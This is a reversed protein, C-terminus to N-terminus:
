YFPHTVEKTEVLKWNASERADGVIKYTDLYEEGDAGYVRYFTREYTGDGVDDLAIGFQSPAAGVAKAITAPINATGVQADSWALPGEGSGSPKYFMATQVGTFEEAWMKGVDGHDATVIITANEYIGLEKMRDFVKKMLTLCGWTQEYEDTLTGTYEGKRNLYCPAHSGDLHYFKFCKETRKATAEALLGCAFSNESKFRDTPSLVSKDQQIGNILYVGENYFSTYEWFFPKMMTPAYRYASLYMLKKLMAGPLITVTGEEKQALNAVYDVATEGSDFIERMSAYMEIKYGQEKLVDLIHTDQTIWANKMFEKGRVLYADETYGTLINCVSPRTRGFMSVANTYGTFGEFDDFFGPDENYIAEVYDYDMYDLIFVFVNEETSYEQAGRNTLYYGPGKPLQADEYAGLLIGVLPAMQMVVLLGSVCIVMNRWFARHFYMVTIVALFVASWAALSIVMDTKMRSWEVIEGTLAGVSGNLCAAQLYGAVTVSFIVAVVYNFIKGRLLSMLLTGGVFAATMAALLLWIVDAYTYDLSEVGFAVMEFPGFFIFTFCAALMAAGALILKNVYTRKDAWLAKAKKVLLEKETQEAM